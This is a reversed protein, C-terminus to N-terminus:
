ADFAGEVDRAAFLAEGISPYKETGYYWAATVRPPTPFAGEYVYCELAHLLGDEVHLVAEAPTAAGLDLQLDGIIEVHPVPTGGATRIFTAFGSESTERKEVSATAFQERLAALDPHDGALLATILDREFDTFSM